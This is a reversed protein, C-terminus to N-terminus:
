CLYMHLKHMFTIYMCVLHAVAGQLVTAVCYNPNCTGIQWPQDQLGTPVISMKSFDYSQSNELNERSGQYLTWPGDLSDPFFIYCM